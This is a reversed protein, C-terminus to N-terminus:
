DMPPIIEGIQSSKLEITQCSKCRLLGFLERECVCACVCLFSPSPLLFPVLVALCLLVVPFSSSFCVFASLLCRSLVVLLCFLPLFFPPSPLFLLCSGLGQCASSCVACLLVLLLASWLLSVVTAPCRPSLVFVGRLTRCPPSPLTPLFLFSFHVPLLLSPPTGLQANQM